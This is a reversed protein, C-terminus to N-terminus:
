LPRYELVWGDGFLNLNPEDFYLCSGTIQRRGDGAIFANDSFTTGFRKEENGFGKPIMGWKANHYMFNSGAFRLLMHDPHPNIELTIQNDSPRHNGTSLAISEGVCLRREEAGNKLVFQSPITRPEGDFLKKM